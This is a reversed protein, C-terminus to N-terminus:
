RLVHWAALAAAAWAALTLALGLRSLAAADTPQRHARARADDMVGDPVLRLALWLGLPVVLLDDLLGLVPVVDPILDIPSLAYALTLAILVRAARPVRPDRRAIALAGAELRLRRAVARLRGTM